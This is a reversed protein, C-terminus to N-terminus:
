VSAPQRRALGLLRRLGPRPRRPRRRRYENLTLGAPVDPAVVYVTGSPANSTMSRYDSLRGWGYM